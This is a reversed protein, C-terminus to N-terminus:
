FVRCGWFNLLDNALETNDLRDPGDVVCDVIDGWDDRTVVAFDPDAMCSSRSAVGPDVDDAGGTLPDLIYDQFDWGVGNIRMPHIEPSSADPEMLYLSVERAEGWTTADFRWDAGDCGVDIWDIVGDPEMWDGGDEWDDTWDQEQDPPFQVSTPPCGTLSLLGVVIWASM